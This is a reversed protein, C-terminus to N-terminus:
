RLADVRNKEQPREILGASPVTQLPHGHRRHTHARSRSIPFAGGSVSVSQRLCCARFTSVRFSPRGSVRCCQLSVLERGGRPRELGSPRIVPQARSRTVLYGPGTGVENVASVEFSHRGTSLSPFRTLCRMGSGSGTCSSALVTSTSADDLVVNYSTVSDDASGDRLPIRWRVTVTQNSSGQRARLRRVVAPVTLADANPDPIDVTVSAVAGAGVSSFPTVMFVHEGTDALGGYVVSCSISPATGTCSASLYTVTQSGSDRDVEYYTVSGDISGDLLPPTWSVTVDNGDSDFVATLDGVAAAAVAAIVVTLDTSPGENQQSNRATLTYLYTGYGPVTDTYDCDQDGPGDCRGTGLTAVRSGDRDLLYSTVPYTADVDGLPPVWKLGVMTGSAIYSFNQVAAPANDTVGPQSSLISRRSADSVASPLGPAVSASDAVAGVPQTRAIASPAAPSASEDESCALTLVLVPLLLASLSLRLM